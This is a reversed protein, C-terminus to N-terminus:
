EEIRKQNNQNVPFPMTQITAGSNDNFTGNQNHFHEINTMSVTRSALEGVNEYFDKKKGSEENERDELAEHIIIDYNRWAPHTKLLRDLNSYIDWATAIPLKLLRELIYNVPISAEIASKYTETLERLQEELKLTQSELQSLLLDKQKNEEKLEGYSKPRHKLMKQFEEPFLTDCLEYLTESPERRNIKEM